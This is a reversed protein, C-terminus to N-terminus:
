KRRSVLKNTYQMIEGSPNTAEGNIVRWVHAVDYKTADAIKTFEGHRIKNAVTKNGKVVANRTTKKMKTM